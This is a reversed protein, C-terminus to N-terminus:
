AHLLRMIFRPSSSVVVDNSFMDVLFLFAFITLRKQETKTKIKKSM